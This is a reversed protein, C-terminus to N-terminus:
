QELPHGAWLPYIPWDKREQDDADRFNRYAQDQAEKLSTFVKYECMVCERPCFVLYAPPGEKSDQHIWDTLEVMPSPM